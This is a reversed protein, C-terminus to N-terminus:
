QKGAGFHVGFELYVVRGYDNFNNINYYPWGSSTDTPPHKDFLNNATLQIYADDNALNYRVNGNYYIQPGTVGTGGANVSSGYRIAFLTTSWPGINWSVSGNGITKFEYSNFNHLLDIQNGGPTRTYKHHLENYYKLGFDFDGFRGANVKYDMSAQIGDVWESSINVPGVVANQITNAALAFPDNAPYRNVQSLAQVCEPSNIDYSQGGFSSGLRCNAELQLLDNANQIQIENTIDIHQYDVKLDFKNSPSWVLGYGWSKSKVNQLDAGGRVRAFITESYGNNCQSPQTFSPNELRCLYYDVNGGQYFGTEKSYLYQMDPARFATAYTARLLLTDFPRFELGVKYTPSSDVRSSSDYRDYRASLDATFWSLFPLRLEGGIASHTRGGAGAAGTRGIFEGDALAPMIPNNFAQNGWQVLGAFGAEGGALHFLDANTVVATANQQWSVSKSQIYGTMAAYQAPTLPTYLRQENPAFAPFGYGYPDVGIQPGLYYADFPANLPWNTSEATNVQSRNYYADYAWDSSGLNGRVGINTNYQHTYTTDNVVGISGMEEPTFIHQWLEIDGNNANYFYQAYGNASNALSPNYYTFLYAGNNFMPKSFSYLIEAYAETNDNIQYTANLYGNADTNANLMTGYGPVAYSGCYYGHNKRYQYAITGGYGGKLPDCTAAGPDVYGGDPTGFASVILYNRTAADGYAPNYAASNSRQFWWIPNQKDVQLAYSLNLKGNLFSNGGDFTIRQNQGGGETYGGIRWSLDYGEIHKKLVINVVGAIASSGYISSQAGSLIDIHDVMAMPITSLDVFNSSANYPLPYDAMPHGNILILTFGPDLGFMSLANAQQTFTGGFQAGQVTGTSTPQTKLADYVSTYGRSNLDQATITIVPNATEIQAQPILSGTVTVTQLTKKEAKKNAPQAVSAPTAQDQSQVAKAADNAHAAGAAFLSACIASALLKRNM